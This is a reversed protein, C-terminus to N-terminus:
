KKRKKKSGQGMFELCIIIGLSMETEEVLNKVKNLEIQMWKLRIHVRLYFPLAFRPTVEYTERRM